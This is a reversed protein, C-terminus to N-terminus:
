HQVRDHKALHHHLMNRKALEFCKAGKAKAEKSSMKKIFEEWIRTKIFDYDEFPTKGKNM